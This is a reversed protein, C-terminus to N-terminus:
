VARLIRFHQQERVSPNDLDRSGSAIAALIDQDLIEILKGRLVRIAGHLELSRFGRSVTEPQLGLYDALDIQRFPIRFFPDAGAGPDIQHMGRFECIFWALREPARKKSMEAAHEIVRFTQSQLSKWAIERARACTSLIKDFQASSLQCLETKSLAVIETLMREPAGRLDVIDGAVFFAAISGNGNRQVRKVGVIGKAIGLIPRASLMEGSISDGARFRRPQSKCSLAVLADRPLVSCFFGQRFYLSCTECCQPPNKM